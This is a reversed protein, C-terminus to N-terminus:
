SIKMGQFCHAYKRLSKMSNFRIHWYQYHLFDRISSLVEERIGIALGFLYPSEGSSNAVRCFGYPNGHVTGGTRYIWDRLRQFRKSNTSLWQVGHTGFKKNLEM